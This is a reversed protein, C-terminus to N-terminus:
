LVLLFVSLTIEVHKNMCIVYFYVFLEKVKSHLKKKNLCSLDDTKCYFFHSWIQTVGREFLFQRRASWFHQFVVESKGNEKFIFHFVTQERRFNTFSLFKKLFLQRMHTGCWFTVKAELIKLKLLFIFHEWNQLLFFHDCLIKYFDLIKESFSTDHTHRKLM